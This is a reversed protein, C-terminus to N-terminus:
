TFAITVTSVAATPCLTRHSGQSRAHRARQPSRLLRGTGAPPSLLHRSIIQRQWLRRLLNSPRPCLPVDLSFSRTGTGSIFAGSSM